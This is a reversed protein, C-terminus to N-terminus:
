RAMVDHDNSPTLHGIVASEHGMDLLATVLEPARDAPVAALLGGATQPDFLLAARPGHPGDFRVADRNAQWITSRIGNEALAEAGPYVPLTDLDLSAALGFPKLLRAAHGALGFGTVDTMARAEPALLRAADGQPFAMVGLMHEVDDGRAAGAMEAALLTGSGIPRTLILADGDKPVADALRADDLLGTVAFGLTFEAGQTSHGGVIAAGEAAFVDGAAAMVDSLWREQLDASLRPLTIQALAAQPMAGMAWIDGLAHIAAIRGFLWPDAWFARLHDTALVQHKGGITLTAADDGPGSVVDERPVEPLTALVRTLVDPGVKAGCGACLPQTGVDGEARLRPLPPPTMPPPHNLRDMFRQDIWDKWRWAWAGGFCRDRRDALASKGGLSILKLYHAQPKFPQLVRDAAAAKLNQTLIPAARVAFVGAKPRQAHTLHACDGVAFVHPDDVARLYPGVSIYGDELTLGTEALWEFPRAGAAGVTLTAPCTSGDSLIVHDATVEAVEVNELLTIGADDLAARLRQATADNVGRLATGAEVVTVQTGDPLAHWMALALEVGAVGGGIVAVPGGGGELHARWRDAFPGLPKAAIAHEAFSPLDPMDSTIGIDISAFDYAIPPRGPVHILRADRDIGTARGFIMRAGAFRALRVLDIELADRNYHGAVFGPLMGTYPATASPNILTLRAGPLPDMGWDRLLLAHAHGGGILVIDRTLPLATNM